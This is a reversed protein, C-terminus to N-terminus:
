RFHKRAFRVLIYLLGALVIIGLIGYLSYRFISRATSLKAVRVNDFEDYAKVKIFADASQRKLVYPSEERQCSVFLGECVEYYAIGSQKDQTAFILMRKGEFADQNKSLTLVFPEPPAVDSMEPIASPLAKGSVTVHPVVTSVSKALTANGDNRFARADKITFLGSGEAKARFIVEFLRGREGVFGGPTIGSFSISDTFIQAPKDLWITAISGSDRVAKVELLDAPFLLKGEFANLSEGETDIRLEAILENGPAVSNRSLEISFVAASVPSPNLIYFTSYLFLLFLIPYPIYSKTSRSQSKILGDLMKEIEVVSDILKQYDDESPFHLKLSVEVQSELEATSAYAVNYFQLKEKQHSRKFGEAINSSISVAARRMQSTIGYLESKPYRVTVSYVTVALDVSKQWVKLDRFSKLQGNM